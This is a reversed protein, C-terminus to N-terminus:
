VNERGKVVKMKEIRRLLEVVTDVADVCQEGEDIKEKAFENM